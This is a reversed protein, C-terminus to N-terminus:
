GPSLSSIGDAKQPVEVTYALCGAHRKKVRVRRVAGKGIGVENM